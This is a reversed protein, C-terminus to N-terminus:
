ACDDCINEESADAAMESEECWWGCVTCRFAGGDEMISELDDTSVGHEECVREDNVGSTGVLEEVIRQKETFTLEKSM